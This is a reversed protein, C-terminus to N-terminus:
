VGALLEELERGGFAPQGSSRSGGVMFENPTLSPQEGRMMADLIQFAEPDRRALRAKRGAILEQQELRRLVSSATEMPAALKEQAAGIRKSRGMGQLIEWLIAAASMVGPALAEKGVRAAGKKLLTIPRKNIRRATRLEASAAAQEARTAM